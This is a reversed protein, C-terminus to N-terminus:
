QRHYQHETSITPGSTTEDACSVALRRESSLDVEDVLGGGITLYAEIKFGRM